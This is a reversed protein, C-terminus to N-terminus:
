PEGVTMSSVMRDVAESEAATPEVRSEYVIFMMTRQNLLWWQKFFSGREAYDYQYGSFDGWDQLTLPTSRDVNTLNRLRDESVDIPASFSHVKLVGDGVEMEYSTANELQPRSEIQRRRIVGREAEWAEMEALIEPPMSEWCDSRQGGAAMCEDLAQSWPHEPGEDLAGERRAPGLDAAVSEGGCAVLITAVSLLVLLAIKQQWQPFYAM